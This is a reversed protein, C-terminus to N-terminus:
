LDLVEMMASTLQDLLKSALKNQAASLAREHEPRVTIVSLLDFPLQFIESTGGQSPLLLDIEVGDPTEMLGFRSRALSILTIAQIVEKLDDVRGANPEGREARNVWDLITAKAGASGLGQTFTRLRDALQPDLTGRLM